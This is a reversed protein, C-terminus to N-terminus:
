NINFFVSYFNDIQSKNDSFSNPKYSFIKNNSLLALKKYNVLSNKQNIDKKKRSKKNKNNLNKM